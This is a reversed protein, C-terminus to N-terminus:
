RSMIMMSRTVYKEAAARPRKAADITVALM